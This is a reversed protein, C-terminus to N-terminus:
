YLLRSYNAARGSPMGLLDRLEGPSSIEEYTTTM